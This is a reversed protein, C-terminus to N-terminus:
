RAVTLDDAQGRGPYRFRRKPTDIKTVAATDPQRPKSGYALPEPPASNMALLTSPPPTQAVARPPVAPAQLTAAPKANKPPTIQIAIRPSSDIRQSSNGISATPSASIPGAQALARQM